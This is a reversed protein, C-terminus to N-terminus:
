GDRIAGREYGLMQRVGAVIMGVGMVIILGRNGGLTAVDKFWNGLPLIGPVLLNGIPINSLMVVIASVLLIAADINRARFARFAASCLFFGIFASVATSMPRMVSNLLFTYQPSSTSYMGLVFTGLACAIAWVSYLSRRRRIATLHRINYAVFGLFLAFSAIIVGWLQLNVSLLEITKDTTFYQVLIIASVILNVALPIERRNLVSM